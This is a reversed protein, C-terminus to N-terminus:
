LRNLYYVSDAEIRYPMIAQTREGQDAERHVRLTRRACSVVRADDDVKVETWITAFDGRMAQNFSNM